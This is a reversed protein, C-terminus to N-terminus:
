RSYLESEMMILYNMFLFPFFHYFIMQFFELFISQRLRFQMLSPKLRLVAFIYFIEYILFFINQFELYHHHILQKM